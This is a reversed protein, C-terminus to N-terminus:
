PLRECGAGDSHHRVIASSDICHRVGRCCVSWHGSSDTAVLGPSDSEKAKKADVIEPVFRGQIDHDPKKAPGNWAGLEDADASIGGPDGFIM